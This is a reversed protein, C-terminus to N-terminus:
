ECNVIEGYLDCGHAKIIKLDYFRGLKLDTQTVIIESDIDPASFETHGRYVGNDSHVLTTRTRGVLMQNQKSMIRKQLDLLRDYRAQVTADPLQKMEAAPTGHEQCYPFVGLWDFYGQELFNLLEKFEKETETPLGAIITTRLSIEKIDKLQVLLTEIDHRSVQRNMLTLMRDNIHQIPMDLYNCVKSNSAIENILPSGISKPHAYMIRIWTVKEIRSLDQILQVIKPEGYLDTGYNATDQAILILEQAGLESLENAEHVLEDFPRSKYAGKISPITCYSCRNSCGEAIKLYAYGSTSMLRSRMTEAGPKLAKLLDATEAIRFWGAVDPFKQTLRTHYRNVSCGLVYVRSGHQHALQVMRTIEQETEAQAPQIFGCTNIIIVDSTEPLTTIENGTAGLAGLIRESDVLNKPCGLSIMHVKM